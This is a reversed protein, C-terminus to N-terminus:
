RRRRIVVRRIRWSEQSRGFEIDASFPVSRYMESRKLTALGTWTGRADDGSVTLSKPDLSVDEVRRHAEKVWYEVESPLPGEGLWGGRTAEPALRRSVGEADGAIAARVAEDLVREVKEEDTEILHAVIGVALPLLVILVLLIPKRRGM